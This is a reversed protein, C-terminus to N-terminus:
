DNFNMKSQYIIFGNEKVGKPKRNEKLKQRTEESYVAWGNVLGLMKIGRESLMNVITKKESIGLEEALQRRSYLKEPIINKSEM